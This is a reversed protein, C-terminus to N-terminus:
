NTEHHPPHLFTILRGEAETLHEWDRMGLEIGFVGCTPINMKADECLFHLLWTLSPNHGFFLVQRYTAKIGKIITMLEEVGANYIAPNLQIKEESYHLAQAIIKATSIARVAPSSIILNPKVALQKLEQGINQAHQEGLATLPREFDSLAPQDWGAKAHRILYLTKM